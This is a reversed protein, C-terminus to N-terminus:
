GAEELDALRRMPTPQKRDKAAADAARKADLAALQAGRACTCRALCSLIQGNRDLREVYRWLGEPACAECPEQLVPHDMASDAPVDSCLSALQFPKPVNEETEIWRSLVRQVHDMTLCRRQLVMALETWGEPATPQFSLGTLRLLEKRIARLDLM